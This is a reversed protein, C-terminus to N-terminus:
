SKLEVSHYKPVFDQEKYIKLREMFHKLTYNVRKKHSLDDVIDYFSVKTKSKTKRLGRGITQLVGVQAKSPNTSVINRISPINIGTSFVGSSAVIIANEHKGVIERIESRIETDVKGSVYYVPYKSESKILEFLPEGHMEIRHFMVLTIGKLGLTLNKIFQNRPEYKYIFELEDQYNHKRAAQKLDVPYILRLIRLDLESANGQDILEKTTIFQTVPGLLGEIIMKNTLMGDLTGTFGVRVQTSPMAELIKKFSDSKVGHAEDIFVVDFSNLWAKSQKVASQYTSLTIPMDTEADVGGKLQHIFKESYFGYDGFDSFMQNILDLRPVTLLIKM